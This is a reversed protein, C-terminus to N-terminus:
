KAKNQLKRWHWEKLLYIGYEQAIVNITVRGGSGETNSRRSNIPIHAEM